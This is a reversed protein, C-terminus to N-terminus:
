DEPEAPATRPLHVTAICVRIERTERVYLLVPWDDVKGKEMEASQTMYGDVARVAELVRRRAGHIDDQTMYLLLIAATDFATTYRSLLQNELASAAVSPAGKKAECVFVPESSLGGPLDEARILIDTKGRYHYVEREAGPVTAKLTATVLCSLDDESLQSFAEPYEHVGRAWAGVISQIDDYSASSLRQGGPAVLEVAVEEPGKTEHRLERAPNHELQPAQIKWNPDLALSARISARDALRERRARAHEAVLEPMKRNLYDATQENIAQCMEQLYAFRSRVADAVAQTGAHVTIEEDTLDITIYVRPERSEPGSLAPTLLFTNRTMELFAPSPDDVSPTPTTMERQEQMTPEDELRHGVPDVSPSVEDPWWTLLELLGGMDVLFFWRETAFSQGAVRGPRAAGSGTLHQSYGRAELTPPRLRDLRGGLEAVFQDVQDATQTEALEALVPRLIHDRLWNSLPRSDLYFWTFLM